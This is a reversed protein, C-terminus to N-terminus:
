WGAAGRGTGSLPQHAPRCPIPLDISMFPWPRYWTSPFHAQLALAVACGRESCTPLGDLWSGHAHLEAACEIHQCARLAARVRTGTGGDQPRAPWGSVTSRCTPVLCFPLFRHVGAPPM